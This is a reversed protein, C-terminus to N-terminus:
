QSGVPLIMKNLDRNFTQYIILLNTTAKISFQVSSQASLNDFTTQLLINQDSISKTFSVKAKYYDKRNYVYKEFKSTTTNIITSSIKRSEM